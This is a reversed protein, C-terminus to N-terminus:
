FCPSNSFRFIFVSFQFFITELGAALYFPPTVPDSLSAPDAGRVRDKVLVQGSVTHATHQATHTHAHTHTHTRTHVLKQSLLRM